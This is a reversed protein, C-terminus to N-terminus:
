FPLIRQQSLKTIITRQSQRDEGDKNMTHRDTQRDTQKDTRRDMWRDM